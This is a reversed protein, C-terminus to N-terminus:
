SQSQSLPPSNLSRRVHGNAAATQNGSTLSGGPPCRGLYAEEGLVASSFSPPSTHYDAAAEYEEEQISPLRPWWSGPPAAVSAGRAEGKDRTTRPADSQGDTMLPRATVAGDSPRAFGDARLEALLPLSTRSTGLETQRRAVSSVSPESRIGACGRSIGLGLPSHDASM